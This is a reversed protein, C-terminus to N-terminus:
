RAARVTVNLGTEPTYDLRNYSPLTARTRESLTGAGIIRIPGNETEVKLDFPDHVHGSLVASVGAGALAALARRGGRTSGTGHTDADVLPHHCAALKLGQAGELRRLAANLAPQKVCGKSWNIRWQAPTVTPLSALTVDGLSLDSHARTRLAEFRAFPRRLRSIMEWYYPMDHNGPEISVPVGLGLLYDGAADFERVTGRMTLDGTCIVADPQERAIEQKLWDLAARDEAGFHLDSIHFLM